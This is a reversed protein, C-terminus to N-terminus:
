PPGLTFRVTRYIALELQAAGGDSAQGMFFTRRQSWAAATTHAGQCQVDTLSAHAGGIDEESAWPPFCTLEAVTTRQGDRVTTVM